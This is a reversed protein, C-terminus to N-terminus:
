LTLEDMEKCLSEMLRKASTHLLPASPQGSWFALHEWKQQALAELRLPKMLQSQWPFPAIKGTYELPFQATLPSALSRALRGTFIKTLQTSLVQDSRLKSKHIATANSEDTALFATGMQVASAGSKLAKLIDRSTSIGGAVVIPIQIKNALQHLLSETKTLSAEPSTLFSARHGGAESGSAIVIDLGAKEIMQAEELSTTTAMITINQKRLAHIIDPKPIGFIFSVIPPSCALIAEIKQEFDVTPVAKPAYPPFTLHLAEFYPALATKLQQYDKETFAEEQHFPVWLNLAYPLSTNARIEQDIQKIEEPSYSNLGFSGLGGANSVTSVLKVSSFNGGFPGQIIPYKIHLLESVPTRHWM